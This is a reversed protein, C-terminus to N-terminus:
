NTCRAAAPRKSGDLLAPFRELFDLRQYSVARFEQDLTLVDRQELGPFQLDHADAPCPTGLLGPPTISGLQAATVISDLFCQSAVLNEVRQEPQGDDTERNRQAAFLRQQIGSAFTREAPEQLRAVHAARAAPIRERRDGERIGTMDAYERIFP